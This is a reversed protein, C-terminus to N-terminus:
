TIIDSSRVVSMGGGSCGIDSIISACYISCLSRYEVWQWVGNFYM